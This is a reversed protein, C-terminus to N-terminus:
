PEQGSRRYKEMARQLAMILLGAPDPTIYINTEDARFLKEDAPCDEVICICIDDDFALDSEELYINVRLTNDVLSISM